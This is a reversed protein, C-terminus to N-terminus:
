KMGEKVIREHDALKVEKKKEKANAVKQNCFNKKKKEQKSIAKNQPIAINKRAM